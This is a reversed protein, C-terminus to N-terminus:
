LCHRRHNQCGVHLVAGLGSVEHVVSVRMNDSILRWIGDEWVCLFIVTMGADRVTMGADRVTMGADRVTMGAYAPIWLAAPDTMSAELCYGCPPHHPESIKSEESQESHCQSVALCFM